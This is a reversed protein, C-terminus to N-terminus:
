ELLVTRHNEISVFVKQTHRAFFIEGVNKDSRMINEFSLECALLKHLVSDLFNVCYRTVNPVM